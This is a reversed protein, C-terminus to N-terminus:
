MEKIATLEFLDTLIRLKELNCGAIFDDSSGNRNQSKTCHTCKKRFTAPDFGLPHAWPSLVHTQLSRGNGKADTLRM